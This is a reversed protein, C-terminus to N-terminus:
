VNQESGSYDKHEEKHGDKPGKKHNWNFGEREKVKYDYVINGEADESAKVM